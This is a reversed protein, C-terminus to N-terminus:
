LVKITILLAFIVMFVNSLEVGSYLTTFFINIFLLTTFNLLDRCVPITTILYKNM